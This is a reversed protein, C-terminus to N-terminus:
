GPHAVEHTEVSPPKLASRAAAVALRAGARTQSTRRPTACIQREADVVNLAPDRTTLMEVQGLIV